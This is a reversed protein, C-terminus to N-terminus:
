LSRDDRNVSGRFARTSGTTRHLEKLENFENMPFPFNIWDRHYDEATHGDMMRDFASIFQGLMRKTKVSFVAESTTTVKETDFPFDDALERVVLRAMDRERSVRIEVQNPEMYWHAAAEAAGGALARLMRVLDGIADTLYSMPQSIENEDSKIQIGSWGHQPYDISVNFM